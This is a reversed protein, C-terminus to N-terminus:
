KVAVSSGVADTRLYDTVEQQQRKIWGALILIHLQTTAPHFEHVAQPHFHGPFSERDRQTRSCTLM